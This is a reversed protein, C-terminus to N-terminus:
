PEVIEVQLIGIGEVEGEVQDGPKLYVPPV